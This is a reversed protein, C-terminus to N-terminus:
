EKSVADPKPDLATQHRTISDTHEGETVNDRQTHASEARPGWCGAQSLTGANRTAGLDEM